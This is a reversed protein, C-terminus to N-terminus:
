LPQITPQLFVPRKPWQDLVPMAVAADVAFCLPRRDNDDQRCRQYRPQEIRRQPDHSTLYDDQSRRGSKDQGARRRSLVTALM